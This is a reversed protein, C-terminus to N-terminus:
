YGTRGRFGPPPTWVPRFMIVMRPDAHAVKPICHRWTRQCSGGMVILDGWGLQYTLSPGGATPRLLFRRPAGLSVTAVIAEPLERAVYDGHWAVSDDGGRYLALNIRVFDQGYHASLTTRMQEIIPHGMGNETDQADEPLGAILRPVDVTREYMERREQRWRICSDLTQFLDQQGSVWSPVYDVWAGHALPRRTLQTFRRDFDPPAGSPGGLLSLQAPSSM